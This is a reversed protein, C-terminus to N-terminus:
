LLDSQWVVNGAVISALPGGRFQRGHFPSNRSKSPSRNVDYTWEHDTGFITVDAPSGVRLNGGPLSLVGAPKHTFLAVLSALDIHGPHYMQELALSLATELGIIGFPCREFEQMKEAGAHPAHDTAIADITGDVLGELVGRVDRNERLPPKMKYNSDYPQMDTDALVFHHPTAEATVRLGRKKAYRVMEVSHQSSIHAVHYRCGALEALILDRAVMVDESCRPIGRLGLRTSVLGEHMDGGASLHLDECHEILPLDFSRCYEMARRVVRANMVPRGDDSIAVIGAKKMSAIASLEEGASGKTIAGIPYVRVVAHRDAQARIYNTVTANDNVPQTNPMCCISTFGGAAASRSGTEITEAHEFGPERLHVHIDVFGPAVVKGSADFPQSNGPDQIDTGIERIM